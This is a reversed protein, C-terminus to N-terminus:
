LNLIKEKLEEVKKTVESGSGQDFSSIKLYGINEEYIDAEVPNVRVNAREIEFDM